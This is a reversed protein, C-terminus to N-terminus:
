RGQYTALKKASIVERLKSSGSKLIFNGGKVHNCANRHQIKQIYFDHQCDELILQTPMIPVRFVLIYHLRWDTNQKKFNDQNLTKWLEIIKNLNKNKTYQNLHIFCFGLAATLAKFCVIIDRERRTNHCQIIMKTQFWMPPM